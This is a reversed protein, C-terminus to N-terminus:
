SVCEIKIALHLQHGLLLAEPELIVFREPCLIRCVLPFGESELQRIYKRNHQLMSHFWKLHDSVSHTMDLPSAFVLDKGDEKFGNGFHAQVSGSHEIGNVLRMEVKSHKRM